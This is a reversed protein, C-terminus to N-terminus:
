KHIKTDPTLLLLKFISPLSDGANTPANVVFVKGSIDQIEGEAFLEVTHAYDGKTKATFKREFKYIVNPKAPSIKQTERSIVESGDATEIDFYDIVTVEEDKDTNNVVWFSAVIEDGIKIMEHSLLHQVIEYPDKKTVDGRWLRYGGYSDEPCLALGEEYIFLQYKKNATLTIKTCEESLLGGIDTIFPGNLEYLGCKAACGAAFEEDSEIRICYTGTEEVHFSLYDSLDQHCARYKLHGSLWELKWLGIDKIQYYADNPEPDNDWLQEQYHVFVTYTIDESSYDWLWLSYTGQQVQYPGYRYKKTPDNIAKFAAPYPCTSDEWRYGFSQPMKDYEIEIYIIGDKPLTFIHGNETTNILGDFSKTFGGGHDAFVTFPVILLAFVLALTINKVATSDIRRDLMNRRGM